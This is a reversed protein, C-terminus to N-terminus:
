PHFQIGESRVLEEFESDTGEFAESAKRLVRIGLRDLEESDPTQDAVRNLIDAAARAIELYHSYLAASSELDHLVNIAARSEAKAFHLRAIRVHAKWADTPLPTLAIARDNARVASEIRGQQLNAEALGSYAGSLARMARHNEPQQEFIPQMRNVAAALNEEAREWSQQKILLKGLNGESEAIVIQNFIWGPRAQEVRHYIKLAQEIARSAAAADGREQEVASVMNWAVGARNWYDIQQDPFSKASALYREINQGLLELTRSLDGSLYETVSLSYCTSCFEMSYEPVSPHETQLKEFFQLAELYATRAEELRNQKALTIGLKKKVRGALLEIEPDRSEEVMARLIAWAQRHHAEAETLQNSEEAAVGVIWLSNALPVADRQPEDSGAQLLHNQWLEIAQRAARSAVTLDSAILEGGAIDAWLLSQAKLLQRKSEPTASQELEAKAAALARRQLERAQAHQGRRDLIQALQRNWEIATLRNDRDQPLQHLVHIAERLTQEAGAPDGLQKRVLALLQLTEAYDLNTSAAHPRREVVLQFYNRAQDLLKNRLPEADARKLEPSDAVTVFLMDIASHLNDVAWSLQEANQTAAQASRQARFLLATSTITGVLVSVALLTGVSTLAPNRRCICSFREVATPRRASVPKGNLWNQLDQSLANATAYRKEPLKELCKLCVAELDPPIEPNLRRMPTAQESRVAQLTALTTARRFPPEGCLLEYLIAGLAYVDSQTSIDSLRSEAQEPSMYTPTGVVAGSRTAEAEEEAFSALGFDSIRLDAAAPEEQPNATDILINSPKLDRHLIGRSHASQVGEALATVYKAATAVPMQPGIALRQALNGGHYYACAMYCVAGHSGAEHIAAIQPHNLAAMAKAERLFRERSSNSVLTTLRPLKLAVERELHPDFALYVLGFGGEGIERRIEFRGFFRQANERQEMAALPAVLQTGLSPDVANLDALIQPSYQRVREIIQLCDALSSIADNSGATSELAELGNGQAISEEISELQAISQADLQEDMPFDDDSSASM